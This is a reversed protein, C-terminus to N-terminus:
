PDLNEETSFDEINFFEQNIEESISSPTIPAPVEKREIKSIFNSQPFWPHKLVESAGGKYGIRKTPTM